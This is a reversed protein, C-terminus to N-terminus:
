STAMSDRRILGGPYGKRAKRAPSADGGADRRVLARM